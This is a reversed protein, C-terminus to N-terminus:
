ASQGLAGRLFLCVMTHQSVPLQRGRTTHHPKIHAPLSSTVRLLHTHTSLYDGVDAVSVRHLAAASGVEYVQMSREASLPAAIVVVSRDGM